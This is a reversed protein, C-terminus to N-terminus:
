MSFTTLSCESPPCSLCEKRDQHSGKRDLSLRLKPHPGNGAGGAIFKNATVAELEYDVTYGLTKAMHVIAFDFADDAFSLNEADQLSWQYPTLNGQHQTDLNSITVDSFQAAFLIDRDL